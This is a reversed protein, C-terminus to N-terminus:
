LDDKERSEAQALKRDLTFLYIVVGAWVILPVIALTWM